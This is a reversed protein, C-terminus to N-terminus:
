AAAVHRLTFSRTMTYHQISATGEITEPGYTAYVDGGLFHGHPPESLSVVYATTPPLGHDTPFATFVDTPGTVPPGGFCNSYTQTVSGPTITLKVLPHGRTAVGETDIELKLQVNRESSASIGNIVCHFPPSGKCATDVTETYAYKTVVVPAEGAIASGGGSLALPAGKLEVGLEFQRVQDNVCSGNDDHIHYDATM